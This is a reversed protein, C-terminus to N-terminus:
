LTKPLLTLRGTHKTLPIMSSQFILFVRVHLDSVKSPSRSSWHIFFLTYISHDRLFGTSLEVPVPVPHKFCYKFYCASYLLHAETSVVLNHWQYSHLYMEKNETSTCLLAQFEYHCCLFIKKKELKGYFSNCLSLTWINIIM